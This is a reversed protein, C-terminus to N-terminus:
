RITSPRETLIYETGCGAFVTLIGDAISVTTESGVTENSLGLSCPELRIGTVEWKAGAITLREVHEGFAFVSFITGEGCNLISSRNLRSLAFATFEGDYLFLVGAYKALLVLNSFLHDVRRGTANLLAISSAGRELAVDIALETDSKGKNQPFALIERPRLRNLSAQELSDMDGVLIDPEIGLKVFQMMGGDSAVRLWAKALETRLAQEPLPEGNCVICARKNNM